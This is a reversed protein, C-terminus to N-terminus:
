KPSILWALQRRTPSRDTWNSRGPRRRQSSSTREMGDSLNVPRTRSFSPFNTWISRRDSNGSRSPIRGYIDPAEFSSIPAHLAAGVPTLSRSWPTPFRSNALPKRGKHPESYSWSADSSRPISRRGISPQMRGHTKEPEHGTPESRRRPRNSSDDSQQRVSRLSSTFAPKHFRVALSFPPSLNISAQFTPDDPAIAIWEKTEAIQLGRICDPRAPDQDRVWGRIRGRPLDLRNAIAASGLSPHRAHYALVQHYEEQLENADTHTRPNYTRVFAAPTILREATDPPM